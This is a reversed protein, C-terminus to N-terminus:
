EGKTVIKMANYERSSQLELDARYNLAAQEVVKVEGWIFALVVPQLAGIVFLADKAAAPDAYKTIFYILLSVVVDALMAQFKKDKFM